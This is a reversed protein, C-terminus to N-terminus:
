HDSIVQEASGIELFYLRIDISYANLPNGSLALLKELIKRARENETSIRPDNRKAFAMIKLDAGVDRSSAPSFHISIQEPRIRALNGGPVDLEGAIIAPLEAALLDLASNTVNQKSVITVNM